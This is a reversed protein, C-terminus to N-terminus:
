RIVPKVAMGDELSAGTPMAVAADDALGSTVEVRTIGSAGLQVRKWRLASGELVYVGSTESRRYIAEKPVTLATEVVQSRIEANINAGPPLTEDPNEVLCIVEGVQRTGNTVIQTPMTEVTGSWERGPAADWTIKVAMGAGARGLEPEDVLVRVKMRTLEGVEAILDGANVYAGPKLELRYVVGTLPSRVKGLAIQRRAYEAAARAEDLSAQAAARGEASILSARRRELGQVQLEQTAVRTRQQALESATAAQKELLRELARVERQATELELRAKALGNEIEALETSPGGREYVKLGVEEQLIRAEAAALEAPLRGPDLEAVVQDQQVRKGPRIAINLIVGAREARIAAWEGPEAKGNTALTSVLTERRARTFTVEPPESERRWVWAIAVATALLLVVALFRKM